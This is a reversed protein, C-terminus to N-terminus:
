TSRSSHSYLRCPVAAMQNGVQVHGGSLDHSGADSGRAGFDVKGSVDSLGNLSVGLRGPDKDGILEVSMLGFRQHAQDSRLTVDLLCQADFAFTAMEGAQACASGKEGVRAMANTENGSGSVTAKRLWISIQNERRTRRRSERSLQRETCSNRVRMRAKIAESLRVDLPAKRSGRGLAEDGNRSERPVEGAPEKM